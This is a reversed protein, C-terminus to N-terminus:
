RDSFSVIENSLKRFNLTADIVKFYNDNEQDFEWKLVLVDKTLKEIKYRDIKKDATYDCVIYKGDILYVIDYYSVWGNGRDELEYMMGNSSFAYARKDNVRATYDENLETSEGEYILEGKLTLLQWTGYLSSSIAEPDQIPEEDSTSCSVFLLLFFLLTTLHKM